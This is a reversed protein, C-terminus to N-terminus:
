KAIKLLTALNRGLKVFCVVTLLASWYQYELDGHNYEEKFSQTYVRSTRISETYTHRLGRYAGSRLGVSPVTDERVLVLVVMMFM